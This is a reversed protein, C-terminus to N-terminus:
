TADHVPKFNRYALVSYFPDSSFLGLLRMLGELPSDGTAQPLRKVVEPKTFGDICQFYQVVLQVRSYDTGNRWTSIAKEYFMRNSFSVIFVGGPKLVRFVEAFVEGLTAKFLISWSAVGAAEEQGTRGRTTMLLDAHEQSMKRHLTFSTVYNRKPALAGRM